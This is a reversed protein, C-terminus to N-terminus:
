FTFVTEISTLKITEGEDEVDGDGNRDVYTQQSRIQLTVSPAIEYGILYGFLTSPTKEFAFVDPVNTQQYFLSAKNVKPIFVPNISVDGYLSEYILSIEGSSEMRSFSASLTFMDLLDIAAGGFVGSLPEIVPELLIQERTKVIVTDNATDFILSARELDYTRDYYNGIFREGYQRYEVRLFVPGITARVGPLAFGSGYNKDDETSGNIKAFEGYATIAILDNSFVPYELDGGLISSADSENKLSLVNKLNTGDPDNNLVGPIQSNDTYGDGDQDPDVQDAVGDGDTDVSWLNNDPFDDVADPVGDGDRDRLGAFQDGDYIATVGIKLQGIINYTGRIGLLGPNSLERLNAVLGQLRFKGFEKHGLLGVRRVQPYEITNSYNDMILGQGMRVELLGGARIYFPDEPNNYRLYFIKDIADLPEDWDEERLNGDADFYFNLDLGIGFPGIPIDPRLSIQNYVQGDLVSAGVSASMGIGGPLKSGGGSQPQSQSPTQTPSQQAPAQETPASQDDQPSDGGQQQGGQQQQQETDPDSPITAPDTPNINMTGTWSSTITMGASLLMTQGSEINLIDVTGELGIFTDTGSPDVTVWFETGKVSAVSVPSIIEYKGDIQPSIKTKISGMNIRIQRIKQSPTTSGQITLRTNEKMKLISKDDTFLIALFSAAETRVSDFDSFWSGVEVQEDTTNFGAPKRFVEGRKKLALAAQDVNQAIGNGALAVFLLLSFLISTTRNSLM